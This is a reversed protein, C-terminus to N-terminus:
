SERTELVPMEAWTGLSLGQQMVQHAVERWHDAAVDLSFPGSLHYGQAQNDSVIEAIRITPRPFGDSSQAPVCPFFSFMGAVPNEFTAGHYLRFSQDEFAKGRCTMSKADDFMPALGVARYAPTTKLSQDKDLRYEDWRDVVFVTDLVFQHDLRSGFLIVSGRDLKKLAGRQQCICYHFAGFV